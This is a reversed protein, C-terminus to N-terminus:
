ARHHALPGAGPCDAFVASLMRAPQRTLRTQIRSLRVTGDADVAAALLLSGARTVVEPDGEHELTWHVALRRGESFDFGQGGLARVYVSLLRLAERAVAVGKGGEVQSEETPEALTLAAQLFSGEPPPGAAALARKAAITFAEIVSLVHCSSAHVWPAAALRPLQTLPLSADGEARLSLLALAPPLLAPSMGSFDEALPPPASLLCPGHAHMVRTRDWGRPATTRSEGGQTVLHTWGPLADSSEVLRLVEPNPILRALAAELRPRM